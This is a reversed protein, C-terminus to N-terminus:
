KERVIRASIWGTIRGNTTEVKLWKLGSTDVQEENLFHVAEGVAITYLRRATLTPAERINGGDKYQNNLVFEKQNPPSAKTQVSVPLDTLHFGLQKELKVQTLWAEAKKWKVSFWENPNNLIAATLLVALATASFFTWKKIRARNRKRKTSLMIIKNFFREFLAFVEEIFDVWAPISVKGAERLSRQMTSILVMVPYTILYLMKKLFRCLLNIVPPVLNMLILRALQLAVFLVVFIRLLDPLLSIPAWIWFLQNVISEM